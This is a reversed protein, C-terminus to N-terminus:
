NNAWFIHSTGKRHKVILEAHDPITLELVGNLISLVSEITLVNNVEDYEAKLTAFIDKRKKETM